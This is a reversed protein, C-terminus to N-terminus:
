LEEIGALVLLPYELGLLAVHSLHCFCIWVKGLIERLISHREEYLTVDVPLQLSELMGM